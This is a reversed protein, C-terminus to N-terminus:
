IDFPRFYIACFKPKINFVNGSLYKILFSKRALKKDRSKSIPLSCLLSPMLIGDYIHGYFDYISNWLCM